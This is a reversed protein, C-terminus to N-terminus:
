NYEVVSIPSGNLTITVAPTTGSINYIGPSYYKGIVSALNYSGNTVANITGNITCNTATFKVNKTGAIGGAWMNINSELNITGRWSSSTITIDSTGGTAIMGGWYISRESIISCSSPTTVHCNDIILKKGNDGILGGFKISNNTVSGIIEVAGINVVCNSLTLDTLSANAYLGAMVLSGATNINHRLVLDTLTINEIKGQNNAFFACIYDSSGGSTPCSTITLHNVIHGDGYITRSFLSNLPEFTYGSM